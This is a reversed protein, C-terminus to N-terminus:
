FKRLQGQWGEALPVGNEIIHPKEASRVFFGCVFIPVYWAAAPLVRSQSASSRWQALGVVTFCGQFIGEGGCLM